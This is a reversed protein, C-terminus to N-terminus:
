EDPFIGFLQSMCNLYTPVNLVTQSTASAGLCFVHVSSLMNEPPSLYTSRYEPKPLVLFLLM